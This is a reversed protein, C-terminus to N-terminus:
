AGLNRSMVLIKNADSTLVAEPLVPNFMRHSGAVAKQFFGVVDVVV